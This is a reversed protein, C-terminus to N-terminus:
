DAPYLPTSQDVTCMAFATTPAVTQVRVQHSDARLGTVGSEHMRVTCMVKAIRVHPFLLQKSFDLLCTSQNRLSCEETVITSYKILGQNAMNNEVVSEHLEEFVGLTENVFFTNEEFTNFWNNSIIINSLAPPTESADIQIFAHEYFFNNSIMVNRPNHLLLIAYDFFSNTIKAASTVYVGIFGKGTSLNWVHCNSLLARSGALYMGISGSFVVTSSVYTHATSSIWVGTTGKWECESFVSCDGFWSEHLTLDTNNSFNGGVGTYGTVFVTGVDGFLVNEVLLGGHAVHSGHLVMGQISIFASEPQTINDSTSGVQFMYQSSPFSDLAQITGGQFQINMYGAPLILPESIGYRGGAFDLVVGGLDVPGSESPSGLSLAAAIMAEFAPSSDNVGTPDAGFMTPFLVGPPANTDDNTPAVKAPSRHVTSIAKHLSRRKEQLTLPSPHAGDFLLVLMAVVVGLAQQRRM